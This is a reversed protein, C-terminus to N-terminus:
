LGEEKLKLILDQAKKSLKKPMDVIVRVYHDGRGSKQLHVMGKGRLRLMTGSSIGAIIELDVRGDIIAVEKKGGLLALSLPIAVKSLIDDGERAFTKHLLVHVRVYLDGAEGGEGVEGKGAIRMSEGDSIGAPINVSIKEVDQLRGAGACQKCRKEPIEGVGRCEPCVNVQNFSGLPTQIVKHIKGRGACTPCLVFKRLSINEQLGQFAQELSVEKDM